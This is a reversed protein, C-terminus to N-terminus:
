RVVPAAPRIRCAGVGSSSAGFLCGTSVMVGHCSAGVADRVADVLLAAVTAEDGLGCGTATCIVATYGDPSM